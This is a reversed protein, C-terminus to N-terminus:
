PSNSVEEITTSKRQYMTRVYKYDHPTLQSGHLFYLTLGSALLFRDLSLCPVLWLVSIIGVFWPHRLHQYFDQAFITKSRMPCGLNSAYYQVQKLGFFESIDLIYIVSFIFFWGMLHVIQFLDIVYKLNSLNWVLPVSPYLMVWNNILVQLTLCTTLNYFSRHLPSFGLESFKQKFVDLACISHNFIFLFLLFLDFAIGELLSGGQSSKDTLLLGNKKSSIFIVLRFTTYFTYLASVASVTGFILTKVKM